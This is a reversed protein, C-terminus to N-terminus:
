RPRRAVSRRPVGGSVGSVMTAFVLMFAWGGFEEDDFRLSLRFALVGAVPSVVAALVLSGVFIAIVFPEIATNEFAFALPLTGFPLAVSGLGCAALVAARGAHGPRATADRREYALTRNM